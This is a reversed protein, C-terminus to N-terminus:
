KNQTLTTVAQERFGKVADAVVKNEEYGDDTVVLDIQATSLMAFPNSVDAFALKTSDFILARLRTRSLFEQKVKREELDDCGFTPAGKIDQRYGTTGVIAVDGYLDWHELCQQTAIGCISERDPRVVGGIVTVEINERHKSEDVSVAIRPSNTVFDIGVLREGAQCPIERVMDLLARAVALTTSGADIWCQLAPKRSIADFKRKLPRKQDQKACQVEEKNFSEDIQLDLLVHWLLRGLRQKTERRHKARHDILPLSVWRIQGERRGVRIEMGKTTPDAHLAGELWRLDDQITRVAWKGAGARPVANSVKETLDALDFPETQEEAARRLIEARLWDRRALRGAAVKKKKM